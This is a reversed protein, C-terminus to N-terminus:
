PRLPLTISVQTGVDLCSEIDMSVRDGYELRLRAYVNRIGIHNQGELLTDTNLLADRLAQLAAHSMGRGTDKVSIVYRDGGARSIAIILSCSRSLEAFGHLISNEVLPQLVLKPITQSLLERDLAYEVEFRGLFRYQSIQIYRKTQELEHQLMVMHNGNLNYRFMGGLAKCVQIIARKDDRATMGIIMDLTNYLFHPNIQQRLASIGIDRQLIAMAGLNRQAEALQRVMDNFHGLVRGLEDRRGTKLQVDLRGMKVCEMGVILQELPKLLRLLFQWILPTCVLCCGLAVLCITLAIARAERDSAELDYTGILRWPTGAVPQTILLYHQGDHTFAGSGNHLAEMEILQQPDVGGSVSCAVEGEDTVLALNQISESLGTIIRTLAQPYLYVCLYGVPKTSYVSGVRYALLHANEQLSERRYGFGQNILCQKGLNPNQQFAQFWQSSEFDYNGWFGSSESAFWHGHELPYVAIEIDPNISAQLLLAYYLNNQLTYQSYDDIRSSSNNLANQVVKNFMLSYAMTDLTEMYQSLRSGAAELLEQGSTEAKDRLQRAYLTSAFASTLLACVLLAGALLLFFQTRIRLNHQIHFPFKMPVGRCGTFRSM